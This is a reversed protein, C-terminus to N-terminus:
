ILADIEEKMTPWRDLTKVWFAVPHKEVGKMVFWPEIGHARTYDDVTEAHRNHPVRDYGQVSIIGGRRVKKEWLVIDLMSGDYSPDGDIHVFDLSGDPILLSAEVSDKIIWFAGDYKRLRRQCREFCREGFGPPDDM